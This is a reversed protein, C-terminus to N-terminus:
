VMRLKPDATPKYPILKAKFEQEIEVHSCRKLYDQLTDIARIADQKGNVELFLKM